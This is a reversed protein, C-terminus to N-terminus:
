GNSTRSASLDSVSSPCLAIGTSQDSAIKAALKEVSGATEILYTLVIMIPGNPKLLIEFQYLSYMVKALAIGIGRPAFISIHGSTDPRNPGNNQLL